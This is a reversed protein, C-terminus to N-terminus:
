QSEYLQRTRSLEAQQQQLMYNLQMQQQSM